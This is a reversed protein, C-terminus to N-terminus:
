TSETRPVSATLTRSSSISTLCRRSTFSSPSSCHTGTIFAPNGTDAVSTPETSRASRTSAGDDRRERAAYVKGSNRSSTTPGCGSRSATSTCLLRSRYVTPPQMASTESIRVPRPDVCVTAISDSSAFRTIWVTRSTPRADRGFTLRTRPRLVITPNPMSRNATTSTPVFETFNWMPSRPASPPQRVTRSRAWDVRSPSPSWSVPCSLGSGISRVTAAMASIASSALCCLTAAIAATPVAPSRIAGLLASRTSATCDRDPTSRSTM